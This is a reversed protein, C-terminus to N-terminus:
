KKADTVEFGSLDYEFIEPAIKENLRVNSFDNRLTSGEKTIMEFFQLEGNSTKFRLNLTKLFKRAMMDKPLLSVDYHGDDEQLDIVDFQTKFDELNKAMPFKMMMLGQANSKPDLGASTFRTAKKKLPEILFVNEGNRVLISKAPNGLEWRFADPARFWLKGPNALPDRLTKLARTQTFDATLTRVESQGAIWKGIPAINIMEAALLPLSLLALFSYVRIM